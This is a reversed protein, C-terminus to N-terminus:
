NMLTAVHVWIEHNLRLSVVEFKSAWFDKGQGQTSIIFFFKDEEIETSYM